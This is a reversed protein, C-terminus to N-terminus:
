FDTATGRSMERHRAALDAEGLVEYHAALRRHTPPYGPDIRLVGRLWWLANESQGNELLTSGIEHRLRPDDPNHRVQGMLARVRRSVDQIVTSKQFHERSGELDGSYLLAKAYDFQADFEQPRVAVARSLWDVADSWRGVTLELQGMSLLGDYHNPEIDLLRSFVTRAAQPERRTLYCRGLGALGDSDVAVELCHQYHLIAESYRHQERLVHALHLRADRRHSSFELASRFSLEAKGWQGDNEYIMGKLYHPQADRPEDGIWSELVVLAMDTQYSVMSGLVIANYIELGDDAPNALLASVERSEMKLHGVQLLMLTEERQLRQIDMKLDAARKLYRTVGDADGLRRYARALSFSIEARDPARREAALLLTVTSRFDSRQGAAQARWVQFEVLIWNHAALGALLCVVVLVLWRQRGNYQSWWGRM